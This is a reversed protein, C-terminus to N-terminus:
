RKPEPPVPTRRRIESYGDHEAADTFYTQVTDDADRDSQRVPAPKDQPDQESMSCGGTNLGLM